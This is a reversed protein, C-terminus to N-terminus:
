NANGQHSLINSIKEHAKGDTDGKQHFLRNM